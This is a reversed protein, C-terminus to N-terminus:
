GAECSIDPGSKWGPKPVGMREGGQLEAPEQWCERARYWRGWGVEQTTSSRGGKRGSLGPVRKGHGAAGGASPVMGQEQAGEGAQFSPAAREWGVGPHM